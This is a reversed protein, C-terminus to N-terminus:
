SHFNLNKINKINKGGIGGNFFIYIILLLKSNKNKQGRLFNSRKYYQLYIFTNLLIFFTIIYSLPKFHLYLSNLIVFEENDLISYGSLIVFYILNTSSYLITHIRDENHMKILQIAKNHIEVRLKQLHTKPYEKIM